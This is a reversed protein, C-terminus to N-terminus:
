FNLVEYRDILDIGSENFFKSNIEKLNKCIDEQKIFLEKSQVDEFKVDKLYLFSESLNFYNQQTRELSFICKILFEKIQKM